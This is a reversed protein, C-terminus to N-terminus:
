MGGRSDGFRRLIMWLGLAIFILPWLYHVFREAVYGM